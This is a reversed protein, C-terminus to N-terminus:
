LRAFQAYRKGGFPPFPLARVRAPIEVWYTTADVKVVKAAYRIVSGDSHTCTRTIKDGVKVANQTNNEM